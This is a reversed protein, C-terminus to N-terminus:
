ELEAQRQQRDPQGASRGYIEGARTGGKAGCLDDGVEEVLELPETSRSSSGSGLAMRFEDSVGERVGRGRRGGAGSASRRGTQARAEGREVIFVGTPARAIADLYAGGGEGVPRSARNSIASAQGGRQRVRACIVIWILPLVSSARELADGKRGKKEKRRDCPDM